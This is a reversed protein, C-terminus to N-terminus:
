LDPLKYCSLTLNPNLSVFSILASVYPMNIKAIPTYVHEFVM